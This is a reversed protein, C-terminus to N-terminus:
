VDPSVERNIKINWGADVVGIPEAHPDLLSSTINRKACADKLKHLGSIETFNELLFGLRRAATVPYYLSLTVIADMDPASAECLEIVLNAANDIGGVNGVDKTVDLLTTEMSSVPVMGSKTETQIVSVQKIHERLFFQFRSRGVTRARVSRSTAVQFVQPAHHSAGHLEAASLWGIYYDTKLHRMLSDIVDIAPPAGWTMYEPPVPVWLGQAPSVIERRRKLAVMRQPVHNKPIGLLAALEDTTISSIGRALLWNVSESAKISGANNLQDVFMINMNCISVCIIIIRLIFLKPLRYLQSSEYCTAKCIKALLLFSFDFAM